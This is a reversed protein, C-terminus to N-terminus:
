YKNIQLFNKYMYNNKSLDLYSYMISLQHFKNIKIKNMFPLFIPTFIETEILYRSSVKKNIKCICKFIRKSLENKRKLNDLLHKKSEWNRTQM